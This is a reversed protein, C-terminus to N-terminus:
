SYPCVEDVYPRAIRLDFPKEGLTLTGERIARKLRACSATQGEDSSDTQLAVVLEGFLAARTAAHEFCAPDRVDLVFTRSYGYAVDLFDIEIRGSEPDFTNSSGEPVDESPCHNGRSSKPPVPYNTQVAEACCDGAPTVVGTAPQSTKTRSAIRDQDTAARIVVASLGVIVAILVIRHIRM